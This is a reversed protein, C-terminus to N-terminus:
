QTWEDPVEKFAYEFGHRECWGSYRMKARASLKNDTWFLFRIDLDPYQERMAIHKRRDDPTLRGKVEIIVGNALFFDPTYTREPLLYKYGEREYEFAVGRDKLDQAVEDEFNSRREPAPRKRRRAM